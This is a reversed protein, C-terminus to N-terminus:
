NKRKHSFRAKHFAERFSNLHNLNEFILRCGAVDDM